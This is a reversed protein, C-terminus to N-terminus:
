PPVLGHWGGDLECTTIGFCEHCEACHMIEIFPDTLEPLLAAAGRRAGGRRAVGYIDLVGDDPVFSLFGNEPVQRSTIAAEADRAVDSQRIKRKGRPVRIEWETLVNHDARGHAVFQLWWSALPGAGQKSFGIQESRLWSIAGDAASRAPM